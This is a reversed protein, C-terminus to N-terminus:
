AKGRRSALLAEENGSDITQCTFLFHLLHQGAIPDMIAFLSFAPSVNQRWRLPKAESQKRIRLVVCRVFVYDHQHM